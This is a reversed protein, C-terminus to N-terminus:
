YPRADVKVVNGNPKPQFDTATLLRKILRGRKNPAADREFDLCEEPTAIRGILDVYVRRLFEFDTSRAAPKKIDAEKWKAAVAENIALTQAPVGPEAAPARSSLVPALALALLGVGLVGPLNGFPPRTM